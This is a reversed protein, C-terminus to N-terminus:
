DSFEDQGKVKQAVVNAVIPVVLLKVVFECIEFCDLNQFGHPAKFPDVRSGSPQLVIEPTKDSVIVAQDHNLRAAPCSRFQIPNRWRWGVPLLEPALSTVRYVCATM